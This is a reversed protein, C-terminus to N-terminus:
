KQEQEEDSRDAEKEAEAKSQKHLEQTQTKISLWIAQLFATVNEAGRLQGCAMKPADEPMSTRPHLFVDAVDVDGIDLILTEPVNITFELQVSRQMSGTIGEMLRDVLGRLAEEPDTPRDDHQDM